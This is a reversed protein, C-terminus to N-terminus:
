VVPVDNILMRDREFGRITSPRLAMGKLPEKVKKFRKKYESVNMPNARQQKCFENIPQEDNWGMCKFISGRVQKDM